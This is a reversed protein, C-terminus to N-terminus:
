TRIAGPMRPSVATMFFLTREFLEGAISMAFLAAVTALWKAPSADASEHLLAWPLAIGGLIGFAFRALALSALENTLLMASRKLPTHHRDFLHLLDTAEYLLKGAACLMLPWGLRAIFDSL